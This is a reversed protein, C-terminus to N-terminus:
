ADTSDSSTNSASTAKWYIGIGISLLVFECILAPVMTKYLGLGFAQDPTFFSIGHSLGIAELPWSIFDCIWHSYVLGSFVLSETRRRYILFLIIASVVTYVTTMLLSHSWFGTEDSLGFVGYVLSTLDPVMVAILLLWLPMKKGLAKGAFGIGIHGLLM